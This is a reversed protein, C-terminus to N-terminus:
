EKMPNLKCNDFHYRRMNSAHVSELNCHPCVVPKRQKWQDRLTQRQEDTRKKGTNAKSIKEKTYDSHRKGYFPNTEGYRHVGYMPNNEGSPWKNINFNNNASMRLSMIKSMNHKAYSYTYCTGKYRQQNSSIFNHMLWFANHLSSSDPYIKTLLHHCIFHEKATLLVLNDSSDSGGLCRPIIHHNEFYQEKNKRLASRLALNFIARNIIDNYIKTYNM